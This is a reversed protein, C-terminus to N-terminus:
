RGAPPLTGDRALADAILLAFRRNGIGTPHGDGPLFSEPMSEGIVPWALTAGPVRALREEVEQIPHAYTFIALAPPRAGGADRRLRALGDVAADLNAIGEPTVGVDVLAYDWLMSVSDAGLLHQALSFTGARRAARHKVQADWRSLDNPLILCMVVVDPALRECAEQYTDLYSALNEGPLGLNLAEFRRGPYRRGLEAELSVGLTDPWDIGIGFVFSDGVLAIRTTDPAKDLSWAPGRFGLPNIAYV